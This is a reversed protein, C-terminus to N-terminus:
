KKLNLGIYESMCNEKSIETLEKNLYKLTCILSGDEFSHKDSSNSIV